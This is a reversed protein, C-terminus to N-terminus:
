ELYHKLNCYELLVFNWNVKLSKQFNAEIYKKKSYYTKENAENNIIYELEEITKFLLMGKKDYYNLAPNDNCGVITVPFRFFM